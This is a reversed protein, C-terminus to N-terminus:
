SAEIAAQPSALIVPITADTAPAVAEVAFGFLDGTDGSLDGTDFYVPGGVDVPGSVTLRHVTAPAIAVTAYGSANGGASRDTLAVGAIKGVLVPDGAETDVPVPLSITTTNDFHETTAM